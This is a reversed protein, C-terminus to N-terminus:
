LIHVAKGGEPERGKWKGQKVIYVLEWCFGFSSPPDKIRCVNCPDAALHQTIFVM